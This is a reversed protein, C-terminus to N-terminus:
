NKRINGGFKRNRALLSITDALHTSNRNAVYGEQIRKGDDDEKKEDWAFLFAEATTFLAVSCIEQKEKAWRKVEADLIELMATDDDCIGVRLM